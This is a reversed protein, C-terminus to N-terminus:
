VSTTSGSPVIEVADLWGKGGFGFPDYVGGLDGVARQHRPGVGPVDARVDWAFRAHEHDIQSSRRRVQLDARVHHRLAILTDALRGGIPRILSGLLPGIFTVAAAQLPNKIAALLAVILILPIALLAVILILPIYIGLLVRSSSAGATAIVLLGLLQVVPVGINGGEANLGLAWGKRAEPHFTNINTMSSAFNGGGVGAVAAAFMFATCSTGPHMVFLAIIMPILLLSAGTQRADLIEGTEATAPTAGTRTPV